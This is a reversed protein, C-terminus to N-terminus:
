KTRKNLGGNGNRDAGQIARQSQKVTNMEDEVTEVVKISTNEEDPLRGPLLGDHREGGPIHIPYPVQASEQAQEPM